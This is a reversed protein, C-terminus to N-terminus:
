PKSEKEWSSCLIGEQEKIDVTGINEKRHDQCKGAIIGVMCPGTTWLTTLKILKKTTLINVTRTLVIDLESTNKPFFIHIQQFFTLLKQLYNKHNCANWQSIECILYLIGIRVSCINTIKLQM